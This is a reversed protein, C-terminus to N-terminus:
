IQLEERAERIERIETQVLTLAATLLEEAHVAVVELRGFRESLWERAEQLM